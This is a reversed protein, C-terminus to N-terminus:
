VLFVKWVFVVLLHTVMAARVGNGQQFARGYFWGAIAALIAFKWNPFQRFPLHLAGFILSVAILALRSDKWWRTCWQLLLGRFLFEERLAVYLFIGAAQAAANLAYKGWNDPAPRLKAFQLAYGLALGIPLFYAFQRLGIRWERATPWLGLNLGEMGRFWVAALIATRTLMLEGLISAHMKGPAFFISSFVRSLVIAAFFALFGVDAWWAHPLRLYWFTAIAAIGFLWLLAPGRYTGSLASYVLYPAVAAALMGLALPLPGALAALRARVSPLCSAIYLFAELVIAWLLASPIDQNLIVIFAAPV